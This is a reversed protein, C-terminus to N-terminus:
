DNSTLNVKLVDEVVQHAVQYEKKQELNPKVSRQTILFKGFGMLFFFRYVIDKILSLCYYRIAVLPYNHFYRLYIQRNNALTHTIKNLTVSEVETYVYLVNYVIAIRHELLIRLLFDFDETITLTLNFEFNRAIAGRLMSPAFAIPPPSPKGTPELVSYLRTNSKFGRIGIINNRKDIIAMGTSIVAIEPHSEMFDVQHKIKWPYIWDDADLMCVYEGKSMDLAYQRAAGRGRNNEFRFYRIREDDIINVVEIPQDDSGDDVIICEWNTYTQALISALAFPLTQRTNYCPIMISVLPTM